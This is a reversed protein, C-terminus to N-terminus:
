EVSLPIRDDSSGNIVYLKTKKVNISIGFEECYKLVIKLKAECSIRNTAIIVTDDMLLLAHLGGLFGDEAISNRMM